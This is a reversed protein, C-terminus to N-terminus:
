NKIVKYKMERGDAMKMKLLYVGKPYGAMDIDGTGAQEYLLRGNVDSMVIRASCDNLDFHLFKEVPNPYPIFESDIARQGIGTDGCDTRIFEGPEATGIFDVINKRFDGYYTSQTQGNLITKFGGNNGSLHVNCIHHVKVGESSPTEMSNQIAIKGGTRIFVDYMGLMFAEHFKVGDDVKYQAYGEVTGDHSMYASQGPVDYPTENQYFYLRGMEGKWVTGYEQFHENFLGYITVYHGNVILGNKATNKNWGVGSGHDARWIWFHDGILDSSNIIMAADANVNESFHGGVRLVLDALLSPNRSHNKCAGEEGAVLLAKTNGYAEILLSAVTVGEVDDILIAGESNGDSPILTAYGTGLVITNANTIHLPRSLNYRGPTIFLHKGEALRENMTEANTGPKVIHFDNELDYVTGEGMKDETWSIGKSNYRLAPRFVKYRGDDGIFLFPKERIVPTQEVRSINNGAGAETWNDSHDNLNAHEGLEVGQYATNWNGKTFGSSGNEIYSNRTYWQQQSYSGMSGEFYCDATFGGSAWGGNWDYQTNRESYVRRLPAAQSVGWVFNGSEGTNVISFNEASRWFTCTANNDALPAPTKINSLLVGSPLAGLGGIHMYYAVNFTGAATYDGPKFFFAYRNSGFQERFMADHIGNIEERIANKDDDPSYIYLNPGFLETDLAARALINGEPGTIRYYYDYPNGTATSDTFSANGTVGITEYHGFRGKARQVTATKAKAETDSLAFNLIIKGSRVKIKAPTEQAYLNMGSAFFLSICVFIGTKKWRSITKRKM